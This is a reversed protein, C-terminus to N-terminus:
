VGGAFISEIWLDAAGDAVFTVAEAQASLVYSTVLGDINEGSHVNITITNASAYIKKFTNRYGTAVSLTANLTIVVNGSRDDVLWFGNPVLSVTSTANVSEMTVPLPGDATTRIAALVAELNTLATAPATPSGGGPDGDTVIYGKTAMMGMLAATAMNAQFEAKNFVSSPFENGSAAGGTRNADSAYLADSEINTGNSDFLIFNSSGSM